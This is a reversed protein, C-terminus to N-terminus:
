TVIIVYTWGGILAGYVLVATFAALGAAQAFAIFHPHHLATLKNEETVFSQFFILFQGSPFQFNLSGVEHITFVLREKM